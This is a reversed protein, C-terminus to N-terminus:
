CDRASCLAKTLMSENSECVDGIQAWGDRDRLGRVLVCWRPVSMETECVALWCCMFLLSVQEGLVVEEDSHVGLGGEEDSHMGVMEEDSHMGLGGLADQWCWFVGRTVGFRWMAIWFSSFAVEHLGLGMIEAHMMDADSPIVDHFGLEGMVAADLEGVVDLVGAHQGLTGVDLDLAQLSVPQEEAGPICSTDARQRPPAPHRTLLCQM